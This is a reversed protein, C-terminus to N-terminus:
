CTLRANQQCRLMFCCLDVEDCFKLHTVPLFHTRLYWPNLSWSAIIKWFYYKIKLLISIWAKDQASNNWIQSLKWRSIYNHHIIKIFTSQIQRVGGLHHNGLRWYIGLALNNTKKRYKVLGKPQYEVFHAVLPNKVKGTM